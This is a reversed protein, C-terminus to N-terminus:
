IVKTEVLENIIEILDGLQPKSLQKTAGVSIGKHLIDKTIISSFIIVPLDKLEETMKINKTLTYGDMKPMEVDTIILDVFESVKRGEERALRAIEQMREWADSGDKFDTIDFGIKQLKGHIMKRITESDDVTFIKLQKDFNYVKNTSGVASAPSIDAVIKEVDLMLMQKGDVNVFGIISTSQDASEFDELGQPSLIDNWSFRYIRAVDVVIFGIKINNFEAIIMKREPNTNEVGYLAKQLDLAPIISGRINFVGYVNPPLNPLKTLKPMRIIERVKVVNIGYSQQKLKGHRDKSELIFEIVELENTGTETLIENNNESM